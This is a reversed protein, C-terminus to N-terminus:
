ILWGFFVWLYFFYVNGQGVVVMLVGLCFM